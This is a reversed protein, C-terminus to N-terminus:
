LVLYVYGNEIIYKTINILVPKIMPIIIDLRNICGGCVEVIM